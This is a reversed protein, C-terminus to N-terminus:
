AMRTLVLMHTYLPSLPGLGIFRQVLSSDFVTVDASPSYGVFGLARVHKVNGDLGESAINQSTNSSQFIRVFNPKQIDPFSLLVNYTEVSTDDFRLTAFEDFIIDHLERDHKSGSHVPATAFDRFLFINSLFVTFNM